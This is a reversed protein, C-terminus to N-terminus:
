KTTQISFTNTSFEVVFLIRISFEVSLSVLVLSIFKFSFEVSELLDFICQCVDAM